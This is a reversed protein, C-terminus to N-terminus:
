HPGGKPKMSGTKWQTSKVTEILHALPEASMRDLLITTATGDALAFKVALFGIDETSALVPKGKFSVAIKGSEYASRIEDESLNPENAEFAKGRESKVM